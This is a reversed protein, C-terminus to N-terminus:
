PRKTKGPESASGLTLNRKPGMDWSLRRWSNNACAGGLNRNQTARGVVLDANNSAGDDDRRTSMSTLVPTTTAPESADDPMSSTGEGRNDRCNSMRSRERDSKATNNRGDYSGSAMRAQRHTYIRRDLTLERLENPMVTLRTDCRPKGGGLKWSAM